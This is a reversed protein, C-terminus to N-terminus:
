IWTNDYKKRLSWYNISDYKFYKYKVDSFDTCKIIKEANKDIVICNNDLYYKINFTYTRFSYLYNQKNIKILELSPLLYSRIIKKIDLSIKIYNM